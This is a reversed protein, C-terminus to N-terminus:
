AAAKTNQRDLLAVVEELAWVRNAVGGEMAPTVRLTEHVHCFNYHVRLARM